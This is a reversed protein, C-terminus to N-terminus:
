ERCGAHGCRALERSLEAYVLPKPLMAYPGAFGPKAGRVLDDYGTVILIPM